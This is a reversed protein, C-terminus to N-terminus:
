KSSQAVSQAIRDIVLIDSKQLFDLAAQLQRKARRYGERHDGRCRALESRFIGMFTEQGAQSLTEATDRGFGSSAGTILVIKNTM